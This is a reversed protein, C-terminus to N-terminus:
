KLMCKKDFIEVFKEQKVFMVSLWFVRQKNREILKNSRTKKENEQLM